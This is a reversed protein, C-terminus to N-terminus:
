KQRYTPSWYLLHVIAGTRQRLDRGNSLKKETDLPSDSLSPENAGQNANVVRSHPRICERSFVVAPFLKVIKPHVGVEALIAGNVQCTEEWLPLLTWRVVPSPIDTPLMSNTRSPSSATARDPREIPATAFAVKMPHCRKANQLQYMVRQGSM